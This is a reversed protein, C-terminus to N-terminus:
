GNGFRKRYAELEAREDRNLPKSTLRAYKEPHLHKDAEAAAIQEFDEESLNGGVLRYLYATRPEEEGEVQAVVQRVFSFNRTTAGARGQSIFKQRESEKIRLAVSNETGDVLIATKLDNEM